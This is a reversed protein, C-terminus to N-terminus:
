DGLNNDVIEDLKSLENQLLSIHYLEDELIKNFAEIASANVDEMSGLTAIYSNCDSVNQWKQQIADVLIGKIGDNINEETVELEPVEIIQDAAAPEEVVATENDLINTNLLEEKEM